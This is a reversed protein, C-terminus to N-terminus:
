SIEDGGTEEGLKTDDLLGNPVSLCLERAVMDVSILRDDGFPLMITSGSRPALEAIEGAGFDHIAVLSGLSAGDQRKVVMGLLDAHYFEGNNPEPLSERAVYLTVGRLAEAAERTDVGKARVIALGKANVSMIQLMLPQGNETTVPGYASLSEAAATFPKVKFNGRVGQPGIIAGIPLKGIAM